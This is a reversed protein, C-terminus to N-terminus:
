SVLSHRLSRPSSTCTPIQAHAGRNASKRTMAWDATHPRTATVDHCRSASERTLKTEHPFAFCAHNLYAQTCFDCIGRRQITAFRARLDFWKVFHVINNPQTDKLICSGYQKRTQSINKMSPFFNPVSVLFGHIFLVLLASARLLRSVHRLVTLKRSWFQPRDRRTGSARKASM